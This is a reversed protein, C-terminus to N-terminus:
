ALPLKKILRLVREIVTYIFWFGYFAIIVSAMVRLLETAMPPILTNFFGAVPIITNNFFQKITAIYNNLDPLLFIILADFPKLLTRAVLSFFGMVVKLLAKGM